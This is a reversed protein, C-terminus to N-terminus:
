PTGKRGPQPKTTPAAKRGARKTVPAVGALREGPAPDLLGAVRARQVWKKAQDSSLRMTKRVEATPHQGEALARRYTAAVAALDDESTRRRSRAVSQTTATRDRKDTWFTRVGDATFTPFHEAAAARWLEDLRVRKITGPTLERGPRAQYRVEALRPAIGDFEVRVQVICPVDGGVITFWQQRRCRLDTGVVQVLDEPLHSAGGTLFTARKPWRRHVLWGAVDVVGEIARIERPETMGSFQVAIPVAIGNSHRNGGECQM